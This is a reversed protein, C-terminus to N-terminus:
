KTALSIFEPIDKRAVPDDEKMNVLLLAKVRGRGEEDYEQRVIQTFPVDEGQVPLSFDYATRPDDGVTSATAPRDGVEASLKSARAAISAFSEEEEGFAADSQSVLALGGLLMSSIMSRRQGDNDNEKSGNSMPLLIQSSSRTPSNNVPAFGAAVAAFALVAIGTRSVM